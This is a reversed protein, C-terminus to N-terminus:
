FFGNQFQPSNKGGRENFVICSVKPIGITKKVAHLQFLRKGNEIEQCQYARMVVQVFLPPELRDRCGLNTEPKDRVSNISEVPVLLAAMNIYDFIIIDAQGSAQLPPYGNNSSTM